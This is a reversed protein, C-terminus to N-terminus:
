HVVDAGYGIGMKCKNQHLNLTYKPWNYPKFRGNESMQWGM